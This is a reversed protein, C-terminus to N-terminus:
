GALPEPAVGAEGRFAGIFAAAQVEAEDATVGPGCTQLRTWAVFALATDPGLDYPAMIVKEELEALATLRELVETDLLEAVYYVLIYGHELNHVLRAEDAPEFYVHPEPPLPSPSHPGSSAPRPSDEPLPQGEALHQAGRDPEEAVIGCNESGGLGPDLTELDGTGSTPATEAPAGPQQDGGCGVAAIAVVLSLVTKPISVARL